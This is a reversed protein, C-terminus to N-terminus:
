ACMCLCVCVGVCGESCGSVNLNGEDQRCRVSVEMCGSRSCANACGGVENMVAYVQEQMCVEAEKAHMSSAPDPPPPPPSPPVNNGQTLHERLLWGAMLNVVCDRLCLVCVFVGVCTEATVCMHLLTRTKSTVCLSRRHVSSLLYFLVIPSVLLLVILM